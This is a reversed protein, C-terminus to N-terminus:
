IWGKQIAIKIIKATSTVGTKEIINKRHNNVTHPSIHLQEAIERSSNGEAIQQIIQKERASLEEDDSVYSGDPKIHNYSKNQALDIVSLSMEENQKIHSIDTYIGFTRIVAGTEDHQITIVQHLIRRYDGSTAKIRYDYRVKLEKLKSPAFNALFPILANEFQIFNELDDPHTNETIFNLTFEEPEIGLVDRVGASCYEMYQDPLYYIFIFYRGVSFTNLLIKGIEIEDLDVPIKRNRSLEKHINQAEELAPTKM